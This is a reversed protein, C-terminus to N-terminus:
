DTLLGPIIHVIMTGAELDVSQVVEPINPLLVEGRLGKIIFVENAGTELVETLTGLEEGEDTSVALGVLDHHFVEDEDLPIAESAPVLLWMGRLVELQDRSEYDGVRILVNGKHFRVSRVPLKQPDPDSPDRALYIEELWSFREPLQTYVAARMEGRVGHPRVLQGIVLFGPEADKNASGREEAM